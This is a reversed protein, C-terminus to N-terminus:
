VDELRPVQLEIQESAQLASAGVIVALPDPGVDMPHEAVTTAVIDEDAARVAVRGARVSGGPMKKKPSSGIMCRGFVVTPAPQRTRIREPRIRGLRRSPPPVRLALSQHHFMSLQAVIGFPAM